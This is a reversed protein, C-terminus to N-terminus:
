FPVEEMGPEREDAQNDDLTEGLVQKLADRKLWICRKAQGNLKKNVLRDLRKEGGGAIRILEADGLECLLTTSDVPWTRNAKQSAQQLYRYTAEPLLYLYEADIYGILTAQRVHAVPVNAGVGRDYEMEETWGWQTPQSPTKDDPTRLYIHKSAFGDLLLALFRSVTTEAQLM